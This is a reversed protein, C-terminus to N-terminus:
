LKALKDKMSAETKKHEEIVLLAAEIVEPKYRNDDTFAQSIQKRKMEPLKEQILSYGKKKNIPLNEQIKLREERNLM